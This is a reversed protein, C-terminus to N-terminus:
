PGYADLRCNDLIVFVKIHNIPYDQSKIERILNGLTTRSNHAYIIIAINDKDIHTTGEIDAHALRRELTFKKGGLNRLALALFYLTYCAAYFYLLDLIYEM